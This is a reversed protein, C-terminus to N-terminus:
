RQQADRAHKRLLAWTSAPWPAPRAPPLGGEMRSQQILSATRCASAILEGREALSLTRLEELRQEARGAPEGLAQFGRRDPSESTSEHPTETM